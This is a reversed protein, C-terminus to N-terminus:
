PTGGKGTGPEKSGATKMGVDRKNQFSTRV